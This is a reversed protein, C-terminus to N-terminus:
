LNNAARQEIASVLGAAFLSVLGNGAGFNGDFELAEDAADGISRGRSISRRFIFEATGLRNISFEGRAGRIELNVRAFEFEIREPRTDALYIKMLEDVPWASRLYRVVPQLVLRVDPLVKERIGRLHQIDVAPKAVEIAVHGIHWELEAFSQLYPTRDAGACAALFCPFNDGYEAICPTAPPHKEVFLTAAETLLQSGMLWTTAPFKDLLASILSAQYHRHHIALRREVLRGGVFLSAISAFDGTIVADRVSSQVDSLSQVLYRLSFVRLLRM